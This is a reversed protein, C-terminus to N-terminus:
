GIVSSFIGIIIDPEVTYGSLHSERKPLSKNYPTELFRHSVNLYLNPRFWTIFMFFLFVMSNSCIWFEVSFDYFSAFDIGRFRLYM